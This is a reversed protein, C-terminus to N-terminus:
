NSCDDNFLTLLKSRPLKVLIILLTIFIGLLLIITSSEVINHMISDHCFYETSVPAANTVQPKTFLIAMIQQVLSMPDILSMITKAITKGKWAIVAIVIIIIIIAVITGYSFYHGHKAHFTPQYPLAPPLALNILPM